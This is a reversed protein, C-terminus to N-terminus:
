TNLHSGVVNCYAANASELCRTQAALRTYVASAFTSGSNAALGLELHQSIAGRLGSPTDIPLFPRIPQLLADEPGEIQANPSRIPLLTLASLALDVLEGFHCLPALRVDLPTSAASGKSAPHPLCPAAMGQIVFHPNKENGRVNLPHVDERQRQPWRQHGGGAAFRGRPPKASDSTQPSVCDAM